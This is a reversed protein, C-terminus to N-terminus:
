LLDALNIKKLTDVVAAQVKILVKPVECFRSAQCNVRGGGEICKFPSVEGDLAEVIQLTTINSPKHKLAYGGKTGKEAILLDAKKLKAFIRELYSLSIHEQKAIIALSLSGQKYHRALSTMARLGYTTRTSFKMIM